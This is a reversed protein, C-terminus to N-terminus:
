RNNPWPKVTSRGDRERRWGRGYRVLLVPVKAIREVKEAVSGKLLRRVGTRRHTAMAVLDADASEVERVIGDAPDGFRVALEVTVGPIARAAKQLYSLAEQRIREAEQDCYVVVRGDVVVADVQTSAVHLLHVKAGEARALDEVAPLVAESGASGDLPVLITRIKQDM